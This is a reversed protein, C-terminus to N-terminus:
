GEPPGLRESVRQDDDFVLFRDFARMFWRDHTVALV